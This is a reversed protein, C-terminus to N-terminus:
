FSQGQEHVDGNLRQCEMSISIYLRDEMGGRSAFIEDDESFEGVVRNIAQGTVTWRKFLSSNETVGIM